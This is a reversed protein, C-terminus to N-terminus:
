AEKQTEVWVWRTKPRLNGRSNRVFEVTKVRQHTPSPRAAERAALKAKAKKTAM